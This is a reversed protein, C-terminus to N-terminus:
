PSLLTAANLDDALAADLARQLTAAATELGHHDRARAAAAAGM